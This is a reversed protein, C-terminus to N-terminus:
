KACARSSLRRRSQAPRAGSRAASSSARTVAWASSASRGAGAAASGSRDPVTPGAWGTGLGAVAPAPLPRGAAFGTGTGIPGRGATAAAASAAAAVADAAAGAAGASCSVPSSAGSDVLPPAGASGTGATGLLRRRASGTSRAPPRPGPRRHRPARAPRRASGSGSGSGAACSVSSAGASAAIGRAVGRGCAGRGAGAGAAGSRRGAVDRGTFAGGRRGAGRRALAPESGPVPRIAIKATPATSTIAIPANAAVCNRPPSSSPWCVAAGFTVVSGCTVGLAAAAAAGVRRLRPRLRHDDDEVARRDGPEGGLLAVFQDVAAVGLVPSSGPRWSSPDSGGPSPPRSRRRCRRAARSTAETSPISLRGLCIPSPSAPARPCCRRSRHARPRPRPRGRRRDSETVQGAERDGDEHQQDARRERREERGLADLALRGHRLHEAEVAVERRVAVVALVDVAEADAQALLALHRDVHDVVVAVGHPPQGVAIPRGPRGSRSM